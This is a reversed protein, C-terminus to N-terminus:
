IVHPKSLNYADTSFHKCVHFTRVALLPMYTSICAYMPKYIPCRMSVQLMRHELM